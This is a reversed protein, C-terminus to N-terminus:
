QMVHTTKTSKHFSIKGLKYVIHFIANVNGVDLTDDSCTNELNFNTLFLNLLVIFASFKPPNINIAYSVSIEM